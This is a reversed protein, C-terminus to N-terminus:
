QCRSFWCSFSHSSPAFSTAKALPKGTQNRDSHETGRAAQLALGQLESISCRGFVAEEDQTIGGPCDKGRAFEGLNVPPVLDRKVHNEMEAISRDIILGSDVRLSFGHAQDTIPM